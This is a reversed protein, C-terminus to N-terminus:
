IELRMRIVQNEGNWWSDTGYKLIFMEAMWITIISVQFILPLNILSYNQTRHVFNDRVQTGLSLISSLRVLEYGCMCNVPWNRRWQSGYFQSYRHDGGDTVCRCHRHSLTCLQYLSWRRRVSFQITLGTWGARSRTGLVQTDSHWVYKPLIFLFDIPIETM